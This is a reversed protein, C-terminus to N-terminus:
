NNLAINLGVQQLPFEINVKEERVKYILYQTQLLIFGHLNMAAVIQTIKTM